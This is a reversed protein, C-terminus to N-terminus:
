PLAFPGQQPPGAGSGEALTTRSAVTLPVGNQRAQVTIEVDEGSLSELHALGVVHQQPPVTQQLVQWGTRPPITLVVGSAQACRQLFLAETASAALTPNIEASGPVGVLFVEAPKDSRNTLTVCVQRPTQGGNTHSYLLRAPRGPGFKGSFVVGNGDVNEPRNSVMLPAADSLMMTPRNKITM